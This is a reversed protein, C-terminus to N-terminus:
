QAQLPRGPVSVATSVPMMFIPRRNAMLSSLAELNARPRRPSSGQGLHDRRGGGGELPEVVGPRLLEGLGEEPGEAVVVHLQDLGAGVALPVGGARGRGPGGQGQGERGQVPEEGGEEGEDGLLDPVPPLRTRDM